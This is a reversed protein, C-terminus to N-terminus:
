KTLNKSFELVRFKGNNFVPKLFKASYISKLDYENSIIIYDIKNISLLEKIVLPNPNKFILDVNKKRDLYDIGHADLEDGIGSLYSGRNTMFSIYPSEVESSFSRQDILLLSDKATKNKIFDFVQIEKDEITYTSKNKLFVHKLNIFSENLVRPVTLLIVILVFIYKYKINLRSLWYACALATYISGIIFVNVLFNFTNAGGTSQMFFSGGIISVVIGSILFINLELPFKSISKKSQFIGLLKSGFISFTFLLIYMSEQIAVRIWNQHDLFIRRALELRQLGLAPQVIFDEFRWLGTYFFGGAGSNVPLYIIIFVLPTLIVPVLMKYEKKFLYYLFLVALGVLAFIGVYVKFGVLTGFLLTVLVGSKLNKRKIWLYFLSLGAFFVIIAFARPPNALFKSGDELSSINFDLGRGLILLLLFILDGGFYLFFVFWRIFAKGLNALQGFVIATLGLFLSVFVTSYQYQTQILPLNFVRILESVVLNGWYHYNQVYTGYMGPEFPPFHKVLENTLALHLFTDFTHACCFFLGKDSLIGNFWMSSLQIIIGLIIISVLLFDIKKAELEFNFLKKVNISRLWVLLFIVLYAHTAWRIGLYGLIYGQWGWLVMGIITALVLKQFVSLKLKALIVHGPITFALVVALWFYVFYLWFSFELISLM